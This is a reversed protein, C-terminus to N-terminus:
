KGMRLKALRGVDNMAYIGIFISTADRSGDFLVGGKDVPDWSM